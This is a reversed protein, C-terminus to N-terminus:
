ALESVAMKGCGSNEVGMLMFGKEVTACGMNSYVMVLLFINPRGAKYHSTKFSGQFHGCGHCWAYLGMVQLVESKLKLLQHHV